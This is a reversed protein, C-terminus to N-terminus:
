RTRHSRRSTRRTVPPEGPNGPRQSEYDKAQREPCRGFRYTPIAALPKVRGESLQFGRSGTFLSRPRVDNEVIAPLLEFVGSSRRLLTRGFLQLPHKTPSQVFAFMAGLGTQLTGAVWWPRRHNFM